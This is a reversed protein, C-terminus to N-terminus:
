ELPLASGLANVDMSDVAGMLEMRGACALSTRLYGWVHSASPNLQLARVYFRASRRLCLLHFITLRQCTIGHGPPSCAWEWGLEVGSWLQTLAGKWRGFSFM